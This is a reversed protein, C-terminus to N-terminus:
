KTEEFIFRRTPYFEILQYQEAQEDVLMQRTEVSMLQHSTQPHIRVIKQGKPLTWPIPAKERLGGPKGKDRHALPIMMVAVVTMASVAYASFRLGASIVDKM